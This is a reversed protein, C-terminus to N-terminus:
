KRGIIIQNLFTFDLKLFRIIKEIKKEAPLGIPSLMFKKAEAVQFKNEELLSRLKKLNFTEQHSFNEKTFLEAAKDFFPDPTTIIILGEKKLVRHAEKLAQSPNDLHEIIATAIIIDFSNDKFPLQHADGQIIEINKDQNLNILEQSYELGVCKAQPYNRKLQSLMLGEAAGIDLISEINNSYFQNISEIAEQTRRKVRYQWSKKQTRGVAYNKDLVGKPKKTM